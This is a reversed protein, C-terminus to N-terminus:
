LAIAKRELLSAALCRLSLVPFRGGNSTRDFREVELFRCGGVDLIETQPVEYGNEALVRGATQEAILLDAWRRGVDQKM